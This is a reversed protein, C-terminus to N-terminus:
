ANQASLSFIVFILATKTRLNNMQLLKSQDFTEHKSRIKMLDLLIQAYHGFISQENATPNIVHGVYNSEINPNKSNKVLSCIIKLKQSPTVSLSDIIKHM